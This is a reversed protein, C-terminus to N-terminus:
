WKTAWQRWKECRRYTMWAARELTTRLGPHWEIWSRFKMRGPEPWGYVVWPEFHWFGVMYIGIICGILTTTKVNESDLEALGVALLVAFVGALGLANYAFSRRWTPMPVKLLGGLHLDPEPASAALSVAHRDYGFARLDPRYLAIPRTGQFCAGSTAGLSVRAAGVSRSAYRFTAPLVLPFGLVVGFWAVSHLLTSSNPEGGASWAALRIGLAAFFALLVATSVAM